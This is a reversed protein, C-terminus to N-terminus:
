KEKPFYLGLEFLLDARAEPLYIYDNVTSANSIILLWDLYMLTWYGPLTAELIKALWIDFYTYVPNVLTKIFLYISIVMMMFKSSISSVIRGLRGHKDPCKGEKHMWGTEGFSETSEADIISLDEGCLDCTTVDPKNSM